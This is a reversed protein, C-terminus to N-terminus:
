YALIQEGSNQDRLGTNQRAREEYSRGRMTVAAFAAGSRGMETEKERLWHM